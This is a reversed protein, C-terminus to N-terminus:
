RAVVRGCWVVDEDSGEDAAGDDVDLADDGNAFGLVREGLQEGFAQDRVLEPLAEELGLLLELCLEVLDGALGVREFRAPSLAQELQRVLHVHM